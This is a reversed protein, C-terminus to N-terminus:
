IIFGEAIRYLCEVIHSKHGYHMSSNSRLVASCIRRLKNANFGEFM